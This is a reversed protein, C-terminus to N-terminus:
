AGGFALKNHGDACGFDCCEDLYNEHFEAESVKFGCLEEFVIGGRDHHHVGVLGSIVASVDIDARISLDVIM